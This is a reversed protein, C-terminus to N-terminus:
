DALLREFRKQDLKEIFELLLRVTHEFDDYHIISAHSPLHRTPITISLALAGRHALHMNGADTAKRPMYSEQYPIKEQEAIGTIFRRLKQDPVLGSDYLLIQPGKGLSRQHADGYPVDGAFGADVAIAIDPRVFYSSTRAGRLGVEQQVTFTGYVTNRAGAELRKIVEMVVACGIRNDWAKSLLYKGNGLVEFVHHPVVMQGPRVGLDEAEEKSGVGIDLYMQEVTIAQKKQEVTLMHVPKIGTVATLTREETIVDWVQNVMTQSFWSGLTQFRLFGEKTISTILLGVEDMHGAIMVKPGRDGKKAVVSGLADQTIEAHGELETRIFRAVRVENGPVGPLSTLAKLQTYSPNM